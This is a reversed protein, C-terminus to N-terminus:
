GGGRGWTLRKEALLLPETWRPLPRAFGEMQFNRRRAVPKMRKGGNDYITAGGTLVVIEGVAAL